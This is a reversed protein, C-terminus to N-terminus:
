QLSFTGSVSAVKCNLKKEGLYQVVETPSFTGVDRGIYYNLHVFGEAILDNNSACNACTESTTGRFADVTGIIDELSFGDDDGFYFVISFSDNFEYQRFTVHITWDFLPLNDQHDSAVRQFSSMLSLAENNVETTRFGYRTRVRNSIERRKEEKSKGGLGNFDPYSYGLKEWDRLDDSLWPDQSSTYFPELALTANFKLFQAM